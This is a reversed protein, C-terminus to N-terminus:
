HKRISISLRSKMEAAAKAFNRSRAGKAEACFAFNENEIKPGGGGGGRLGPSHHTRPRSTCAGHPKVVSGPAGAARLGTGAVAWRCAGEPRTKVVGKRSM